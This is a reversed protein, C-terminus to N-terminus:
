RTQWRESLRWLHVMFTITINARKLSYITKFIERWRNELRFLITTEAMLKTSEDQDLLIQFLFSSIFNKFKLGQYVLILNINEFLDEPKTIKKSYLFDYIRVTPTKGGALWFWLSLFLFLFDNQLLIFLFSPYFFGLPFISRRM